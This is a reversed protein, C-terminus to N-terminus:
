IHPSNQIEKEVEHILNLMQEPTISDVIAEYIEVVNLVISRESANLEIHQEQQTLQNFMNSIIGRAELCLQHVPDNENSACMGLRIASYIILVDEEGYQITIVNDYALRVPLTIEVKEVPEFTRSKALATHMALPDAKVRARRNKLSKTKSNSKAKAM